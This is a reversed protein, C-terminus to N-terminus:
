RRDRLNPVRTGLMIHMIITCFRLTAYNFIKTGRATLPRSNRGPMTSFFKEKFMLHYLRVIQKTLNQSVKQVHEQLLRPCFRVTLLSFFFSFINLMAEQALFPQKPTNKSFVGRLGKPTLPATNVRKISNEHFSVYRGFHINLVLHAWKTITQSESICVDDM